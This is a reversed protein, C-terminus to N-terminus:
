SAEGSQEAAFDRRKIKAMRGDPHHWVVGEYPRIQLWTALGDYDRPAAKADQRVFLTAWGHEMLVHAEFGDPNGNIKPGLLEYTGPRLRHGVGLAEAHWRAFGSQEIPEWGMQKGTEPDEGILLFNRPAAKGHKVERRAWWEGQEDLMVCVGDWKVTAEGEGDFVWGCEPNPERTVHKPNGDWDRQFLTPIKRM